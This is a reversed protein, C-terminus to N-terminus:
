QSSNVWFSNPLLIVNTKQSRSIVLNFGIFYLDEAFYQRLLKIVTSKSEM